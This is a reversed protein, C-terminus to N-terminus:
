SGKNQLNMQKYNRLLISWVNLLVWIIKMEKKLNCLYIFMGITNDREKAIVEKGFQWIAETNNDDM